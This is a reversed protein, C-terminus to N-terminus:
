YRLEDNAWMSKLRAFIGGVTRKHMLALMSVCLQFESLLQQEEAKSWKQGRRSDEIESAAGVARERDGLEARVISKIGGVLSEAARAQNM